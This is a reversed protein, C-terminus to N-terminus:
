RVKERSLINGDKDTTTVTRSGDPNTVSTTTEGADPLNEEDPPTKTKKSQGNLRQKSENCMETEDARALMQQHPATQMKAGAANAEKQLPELYDRQITCTEQKVLKRDDASLSAIFRYTLFPCQWVILTRFYGQVAEEIRAQKICQAAYPGRCSTLRSKLRARMTELSKKAQEPTGPRWEGGLGRCATKIMKDFDAPKSPFSKGSDPGPGPKPGPKPGPPVPGPKPGPGSGGGARRQDEPNVAGSRMCTVTAGDIRYDPVNRTMRCADAMDIIHHVFGITRGPQRCLHETGWSRTRKLYTSNTYRTRCYRAFDPPGVPQGGMAGPSAQQPTPAPGTGATCIIRTGLRRFSANGTTMRCAEALDINHLVFGITAGPQRCTHTLGTRQHSSNPHKARCYAQFDADRESQAAAIDTLLIMILAVALTIFMAPMWNPSAYYMVCLTM